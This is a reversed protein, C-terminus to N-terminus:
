KKFTINKNWTFGIIGTLLVACIYAVIYYVKLIEVMLLMIISNIGIGFAFMSFYMIMQRKLGELKKDKFVFIKRGLFTIISGLSFVTWSSALYWLHLVDTFIYLLCIEIANSIGGVFSYGFFKKGVGVYISINEEKLRDKLINM